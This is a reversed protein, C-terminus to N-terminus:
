RVTLTGQMGLLLHGPVTCYFTYTGPEAMFTVQREGRVPAQLDVNLEDITFTHWFLDHNALSVTVQGADTALQTTSYVMNVTELALDTHPVALEARMGPRMILGPAIMLVFLVVAALGVIPAGREGADPNRRQVVVAVAAVLGALSVAALSAPLLLDLLEEGHSANSVAGTLTYSTLDTFVLALIVVGPLGGRLRLLALGLLVVTALFLALLDELGVAVALLITLDSAAALQLLGRWNFRTTGLRMAITTMM